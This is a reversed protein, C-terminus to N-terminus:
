RGKWVPHSAIGAGDLLVFSRAALELVALFPGELEGEANMTAASFVMYRGDPSYDLGIRGYSTWASYGQPILYHDSAGTAIDLTVIWGPNVDLDAEGASLYAVRSGDPSFAMGSYSSVRGPGSWAGASITPVSFRRLERGSEADAIFITRSDAFVLVDESPSFVPGLGRKATVDAVLDDDYYLARQKGSAIEVALIKVWKGVAASSHDHLAGSRDYVDVDGLHKSSQAAFALLKGDRSISPHSVEVEPFIRSEFRKGGVTGVLRAATPHKIAFILADGSRRLAPESASLTAFDTLRTVENTGIDIACWGRESESRHCVYLLGDQVDGVGIEVEVPKVGPEVSSKGPDSVSKPESKGAEGGKGCGAGLSLLWVMGAGVVLRTM